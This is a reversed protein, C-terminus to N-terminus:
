TLQRRREAKLRRVEAWWEDLRREIVEGDFRPMRGWIPSGTYWFAQRKEELTSIASYAQTLAVTM